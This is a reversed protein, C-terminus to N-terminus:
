NELFTDIEKTFNNLKIKPNKVKKKSKKVFDTLSKEIEKIMEKSDHKEKIKYFNPHNKILGAYGGKDVALLSKGAALIEFPVIGFDEEYGLFIGASSNSLIKELDKDSVNTKIEVNKTESQLKKLKEFYNKNDISGVLSLNYKPNKKVFNKWAKLLLDQRKPPNLRSYYVLLKGKKEKKLNEFRSFDVPPYILSVNKNKILNRELARSKSLDSIFAVKDFKKWAIKEFFKYIKVSFLYFGKKLLNKNYRNKLNWKVINKSAERLPTCVYAYTKGKIRNRFTIFEAVGSTSVLFLDYNELPIKKFLSLPLFLGRLLHLRALKSGFKPTLVKINFNKFEKFTNKEDYIWTYLDIKHKSTKLIELILKEAGGKSKIWPHFLAIKKQSTKKPM